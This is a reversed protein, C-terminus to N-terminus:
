ARGVCGAKPFPRGVRRRLEDLELNLHSPVPDLDPLYLHKGLYVFARLYIILLM